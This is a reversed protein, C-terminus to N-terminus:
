NHFSICQVAACSGSAAAARCNRAGLKDCCDHGQGCISCHATSKLPVDNHTNTKCTIIVHNKLGTHIDNLAYNKARMQRRLPSHSENHAAAKAAAVNRAPTSGEQPRLQQHYACRLSTIVRSPLTVHTKCPMSDHSEHRSACSCVLTISM